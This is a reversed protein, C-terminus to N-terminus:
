QPVETVAVSSWLQLIAEIPLDDPPDIEPLCPVIEPAVPMPLVPVTPDPNSFDLAEVLNGVDGSADRATLPRLQWRWEILKLVSTHDFVM